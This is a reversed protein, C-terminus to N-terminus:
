RLAVKLRAKLKQQEIKLLMSEKSLSPLEADKRGLDDLKLRLGEADLDSKKHANEALVTVTNDRVDVIGGEIVYYDTESQDMLRVEGIGLESILPSHGPLFGIEGDHAALVAFEVQGEFLM